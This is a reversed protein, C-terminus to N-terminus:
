DHSTISVWRKFDPAITRSVIIKDPLNKTQYISVSLKGNIDRSYNKILDRHLIFKRNLRYFLEQPLLPMIKNLSNDLVFNKNEKTKLYTAGDDVYFASISEFPITEVTKGLQVEFGHLRLKKDKERLSQTKLWQDYFYMGIYIGNIVLIWIFFIFLNYTYFKIPLPHDGFIENIVVTALIIFGQAFINTLLLQLFLRKMLAKDYPLRRDLFRIIVRIIWWAVYGQATDILYTTYTYWDWRINTYTLHYNITNIFPILILFILTDNYKDLYKSFM